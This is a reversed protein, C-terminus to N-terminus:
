IESKLSRLALLFIDCMRLTAYSSRSERRKVRVSPMSMRVFLYARYIKSRAPVTLRKRKRFTGSINRIICFKRKAASYIAHQKLKPSARALAAAGGGDGEWKAWRSKSRMFASLQVVTREHPRPMDNFPQGLGLM